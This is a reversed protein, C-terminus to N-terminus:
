FRQLSQSDEATRTPGHKPDRVEQSPRFIDTTSANISILSLPSSALDPDCKVSHQSTSKGDDGPPLRRRLVSANSALIADLFEGQDVLRFDLLQAVERSLEVALDPFDKPGRPRVVVVGKEDSGNELEGDGAEGAAAKVFRVIDEARTKGYEVDYLLAKGGGNTVPAQLSDFQTAECFVVTYGEFISHRRPDPAYEEAPRDSPEQSKPPLYELPDPWNADFDEELPSMSEAEDLNAPTAAYVVADVYKALVIYKGNILAQLGKATNRKGAIVHTTERVDYPIM